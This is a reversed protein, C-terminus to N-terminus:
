VMIILCCLPNPPSTHPLLHKLCQNQPHTKAQPFLVAEGLQRRGRPIHLLRAPQWPGSVCQSWLIKSPLKILCFIWCRGRPAAAAFYSALSPTSSVRGEQGSLLASCVQGLGKEPGEPLSSRPFAGPFCIKSLLLFPLARCLHVLQKYPLSNGTM